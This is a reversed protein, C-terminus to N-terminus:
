YIQIQQHYHYYYSNKMDLTMLCRQLILRWENIEFSGSPTFCKLKHLVKEIISKEQNKISSLYDENEENM